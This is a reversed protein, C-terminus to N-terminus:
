WTIVQDAAFILDLLDEYSLGASVRWVTVSAPLDPAAAGPLLAVTVRDGAGLNQEIVARALSTDGSKILHLVAAAM